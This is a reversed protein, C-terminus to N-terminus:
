ISAVSMWANSYYSEDDHPDMEEIPLELSLRQMQLKELYGEWIIDEEDSELDLDSDSEESDMSLESFVDSDSDNESDRVIVDYLRNAIPIFTYNGTNPELRSRKAAPEEDDFENSRDRKSQQLLGAYRYEDSNEETLAYAHYLEQLRQDVWNWHEGLLGAEMFDLSDNDNYMQPIIITTM